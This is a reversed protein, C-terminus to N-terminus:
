REIKSAAEDFAKQAEPIKAELDKIRGTIKAIKDADKAPTSELELKLKELRSTMRDLAFGQKTASHSDKFVKWSLGGASKHYNSEDIKGSEVAAKFKKGYKGKGKILNDETASAIADRVQGLTASHINSVINRIHTKPSSLMAVYRWQTLQDLVTMPMSKRAQILAKSAVKEVEDKSTAEDMKDLEDLVKKLGENKKLVDDLEEITLKNGKGKGLAKRMGASRNFMDLIQERAAKARHAPSSMAMKHWMHLSLGSGSTQEGGARCAALFLDGSWPQDKNANAFDVAAILDYIQDRRENETLRLKNDAYDNFDKIMQQVGGEQDAKAMVRQAGKALNEKDHYVDVVTEGNKLADYAIGKFGKDGTVAITSFGRKTHEEKTRWESDFFQRQEGVNMKEVNDTNLDVGAESYAKDKLKDFESKGIDADDVAKEVKKGAQYVEENKSNFGLDSVDDKITAFNDDANRAQQTRLNEAAPKTGKTTPPVDRWANETMEDVLDQRINDAAQQRNEYFANDGGNAREIDDMERAIEDLRRTQEETEKGVASISNIIEDRERELADYRAFPAFREDSRFRSSFAEEESMKAQPEAQRTRVEPQRTVPEGRRAAEYNSTRINALDDEAFKRQELLSTFDDAAEQRVEPSLTPDGATRYADDLRTEIDGLRFQAEIENQMDINTLKRLGMRESRPANAEANARLSELTSARKAKQAAQTNEVLDKIRINEEPLAFSRDLAREGAMAKGLIQGQAKKIAANNKTLEGAAEVAAKKNGGLIAGGAVGGTVAFNLAASTGLEKWWDKSGVEHQASAKNIDYIAGTTLNQVIDNGLASVIKEAKKRGTQKILEETAESVLGKKVAKNVGRKALGQVVKKEALREAAKPAAKSVVKAGLKETKNKNEQYYQENKAREKDRKAQAKIALESAGFTAGSAAGRAASYATPHYKVALEEAVIDSTNEGSKVRIRAEQAKKKDGKEEWYKVDYKHNTRENFEKSQQKNSDNWKKVAGVTKNLNERAREQSKLRAAQKPDPVDKKLASDLKAFSSTQKQSESKTATAMSKYKPKEEEGKGTLSNLMARRYYGTGGDKRSSSYYNTRQRQSSGSSGSSKASKNGSFVAKIRQWLTQKAM